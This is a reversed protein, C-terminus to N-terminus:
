QLLDRSATYGPTAQVKAGPRTVKVEVTRWKNDAAPNTSNYVLVYQARLAGALERYVADLDKATPAFFARGGSAGALRTMIERDVDSGLGLAFLPTGEEKLRATTASLTAKSGAHKGSADEDKGDTLLVITRPEPSDKLHSLAVGISDYLATGGAARLQKLGAGLSAHDTTFAGPPKVRSSFQEFAVRDTAGLLGLFTSAAEVVTPLAARISGSTDIVLVISRAGVERRFQVVTQPVGDESVSFDEKKLDSLYGGSADRAVATLRVPLSAELSGALGIVAWMTHAIDSECQTALLPWTGSWLQRTVLWKVGAKFAPAETSYGALKLAYLAQGTGYANSGGSPVEGFGGDQEQLALLAAIQSSLAGGKEGAEVSAIIKMVHDQVTKPSAAKVFAYARDHAPKLIDRGQAPGSRLSEALVGVAMATGTITGAQIPPHDGSDFVFNEPPEAVIGQVSSVFVDKRSPAFGSVYYRLAMVNFLNQKEEQNEGEFQHAMFEGLALAAREQVKYGNKKALAMGMLTQSQLHCGSCAHKNQWAPSDIELYNLGLQAARRPTEGPGPPDVMVLMAARTGLDRATPKKAKARAAKEEESMKGASLDPGSSLEEETPPKLRVYYTGPAVKGHWGSPRRERFAGPSFKAGSADYVAVGAGWTNLGGVRLVVPESADVTVKFWAAENERFEIDTAVNVALPKAKSFNAVVAPDPKGKVPIEPESPEETAEQAEPAQAEPEQQAPPEPQEQAAPEQPQEKAAPEEHQPEQQEAPVPEQDQWRAIGLTMPIAMLLAMILVVTVRGTTTERM